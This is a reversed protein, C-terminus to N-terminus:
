TSTWPYPFGSPTILGVLTILKVFITNTQSTDGAMLSEGQVAGSLKHTSEDEISRGGQEGSFDSNRGGNGHADDRPGSDTFGIKSRSEGGRRHRTGARKGDNRSGKTVTLPGLSVCCGQRTAAM